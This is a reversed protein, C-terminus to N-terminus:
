KLSSSDGSFWLHTLSTEELALPVKSSPDFIQSPTFSKGYNLYKAVIHKGDHSQSIREKLQKFGLIAVAPRNRNKPDFIKKYVSYTLLM